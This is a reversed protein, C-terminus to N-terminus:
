AGDGVSLSEIDLIELKSSLHPATTCALTLVAPQKLVSLLFHGGCSAM